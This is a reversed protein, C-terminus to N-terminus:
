LAMLDILRGALINVVAIGALLSLSREWRNVRNEVPILSLALYALAVIPLVYRNQMGNVFGAGVSTFSLYLASASLLTTVAAIFLWLSAWSVAQRRELVPKDKALIAGAVPLLALPEAIFNLSSAGTEIFFHLRNVINPMFDLALMRLFSAPHALIFAIQGRVDAGPVATGDLSSRYALLAWTQVFIAVFLTILVAGVVARKNALRQKPLFFALLLLAGYGLYKASLLFAASVVLLILDSTKMRGDTEDFTYHLCISVFLLASAILMGDINFTGALELATPILATLFLVTQFRKVRRIALWCVFVYGLYGTLRGLAIDVALPLSLLRGIGLGIAGPLYCLPLYSASRERPLFELAGIPRTLEASSFVNALSWTERQAYLDYGGPIHIGAKGRVFLPMWEGNTIGFVRQFHYEEDTCYAFKTVVVYFVGILLALLLFNRPLSDGLFMACLISCALLLLFVVSLMTDGPTGGSPFLHLLGARSVAFLLWFLLM